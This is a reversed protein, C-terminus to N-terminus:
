KIVGKPKIKKRYECLECSEILVFKLDLTTIQGKGCEPCIEGKPVTTETIDDIVDEHFHTKRELQKNRKRLRRCTSELRRIRGRLLEVESHGKNKTKSM